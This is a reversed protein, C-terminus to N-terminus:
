LDYMAEAGAGEFVLLLANSNSPRRLVARKANGMSTFVTCAMLASGQRSLVTGEDLHLGFM